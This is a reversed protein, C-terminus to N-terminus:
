KPVLTLAGIRDSPIERHLGRLHRWAVVWLLLLAFTDMSVLFTKMSFHSGDGGIRHGSWGRSLFIYAGITAMWGFIDQRAEARAALLTWLLPIALICYDEPCFPLVLLLSVMYFGCELIAAEGAQRRKSGCIKLLGYAVSVVGIGTVLAALARNDILCPVFGNRFFHLRSFGPISQSPAMRAGIDGAFGLTLKAFLPFEHWGVFSFSIAIAMLFLSLCAFAQSWMRKLLLFGVWGIMWTKLLAGFAVLVLLITLRERAYAWCICCVIALVFADAQGISFTLVSPWFRFGTILMLTVLIIGRRWPGIRLASAIFMAAAVISVASGFFWLEAIISFDFKALPQFVFAVPPLYNYLPWAATDLYLHEGRNLRMAADVYIRLDQSRFPSNLFSRYAESVLFWAALALLLLKSRDFPPDPQHEITM